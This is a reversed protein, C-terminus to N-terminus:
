AIITGHLFLTQRQGPNVTLVNIEMDKSLTKMRKAYEGRSRPPSLRLGFSIAVHMDKRPKQEIKKARNTNEGTWRLSPVFVRYRMQAEVQIIAYASGGMIFKTAMPVLVLRAGPDSPPPKVFAVHASIAGVIARYAKPSITNGHAGAREPSL